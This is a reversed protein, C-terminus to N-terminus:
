RKFYMEIKENLEPITIEVRPPALQERSEDGEVAAPEEAVAATREWSARSAPVDENPEEVKSFIKDRKVM